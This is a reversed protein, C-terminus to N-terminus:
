SLYDWIQLTNQYNSDIIQMQNEESLLLFLDFANNYSILFWMAFIFLLKFYILHFLYILYM